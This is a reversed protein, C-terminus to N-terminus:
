PCLNACRGMVCERPIERGRPVTGFQKVRFHSSRQQSAQLSFLNSGFSSIRTLCPDRCQAHLDNVALFLRYISISAEGMVFIVGPPGWSLTM